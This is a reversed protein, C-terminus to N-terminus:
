ERDEDPIGIFAIAEQTHTNKNCYKLLDYCYDIIRTDIIEANKTESSVYGIPM